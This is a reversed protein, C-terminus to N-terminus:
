DVKWGDALMDKVSEYEVFPVRDLQQQSQVEYMNILYIKLPNGRGDVLVGVKDAQKLPLVPWNPWLDPNLIFEEESPNFQAKM